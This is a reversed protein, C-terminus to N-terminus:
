LCLREKFEKGESKAKRVTWWVVRQIRTEMVAMIPYLKAGSKEIGGNQMIFDLVTHKHPFCM